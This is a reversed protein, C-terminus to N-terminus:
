SPAPAAMPLRVELADFALLRLAEAAPRQLLQITLFYARNVDVEDM